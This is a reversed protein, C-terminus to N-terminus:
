DVAVVAVLADVVALDGVAGVVEGLLGLGDAHGAAVQGDALAGDRDALHALDDLRHLADVAAQEVLVAGGLVAGALALLVLLGLGPLGLLALLALLVRGGVGLDL